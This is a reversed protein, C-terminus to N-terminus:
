RAGRAKPRYYVKRAPRRLKDIPCRDRQRRRELVFALAGGSFASLAFAFAAYILLLRERPDMPVIDEKDIDRGADSKPIYLSGRADGYESEHDRVPANFVIVAVVGCSVAIAVGVALMSVLDQVAADELRYRSGRWKPKGYRGGQLMRAMQLRAMDEPPVARSVAPRPRDSALITRYAEAVEIFRREAASGRTSARDPHYEKALRRFADRAAEPSADSALGLIM